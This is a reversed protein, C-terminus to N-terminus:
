EEYIIPSWPWMDFVHMLVVDGAIDLNELEKQPKDFREIRDLSNGSVYFQGCNIIIMHSGHSSCYIVDGFKSIDVAERVTYGSAPCNEVHSYINDVFKKYLRKECEKTHGWSLAGHQTAGFEFFCAVCFDRSHIACYRTGYGRVGIYLEHCDYCTSVDKGRIRMNAMALLECLKDVDYPEFEYYNKGEKEGPIDLVKNAIKVNKYSFEYESSIYLADTSFLLQSGREDSTRLRIIDETSYTIYMPEFFRGVEGTYTGIMFFIGCNIVIMGLGAIERMKKITYAYENERIKPEIELYIVDGYKSRLIETVIDEGNQEMGAVVNNLMKWIETRHEDEEPCQEFCAM